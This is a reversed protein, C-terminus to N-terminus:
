FFKFIRKTNKINKKLSADATAYKILFGLMKYNQCLLFKKIRLYRVEVFLDIISELDFMKFNKVRLFRIFKKFKKKKKLYFKGLYKFSSYRSILDFNQLQLDDSVCDDFLGTFENQKIFTSQEEDEFLLTYYDYLEVTLCNSFVSTLYSPTSSNLFTYPHGNILKIDLDSVETSLL